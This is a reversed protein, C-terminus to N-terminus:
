FDWSPTNLKVSATAARVNLRDVLNRPFVLGPATQIAAQAERAAEDATLFPDLLLTLYPDFIKDKM